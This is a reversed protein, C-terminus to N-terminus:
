HADYTVTEKIASYLRFNKVTTQRNTTGKYYLQCLNDYTWGAIDESYTVYGGGSSDSRLTGVVTGNKRIQGYVTGGGFITSKMDFKIRLTGTRTVRIEKTKRWTNWLGYPLMRETDASEVLGDGATYALKVQTVAGDPINITGVLEGTLIVDTGDFKVNKAPSGFSFKYAAGSYGLYFGTGTAYGTQGGKIWGTNPMTITGATIAGMNANIAALNTVSIQTATVTNTYIDGGDIKTVDSAHRWAEINTKNANTSFIRNTTESACKVLTISGADIYTANVANLTALSGQGSISAAVNASTQDALADTCKAATYGTAISAGTYAAANAATHASTQDANADTCKAVTLATPLTGTVGSSTLVIKGASIATTLVRSYTVGDALNDLSAPVPSKNGAPYLYLAKIESATLATNYIRVEDIKGNFFFYSNRLSGISIGRWASNAGIANDSGIEVGDLYLRAETNADKVIVVHHWDGFEITDAPNISVATAGELLVSLTRNSMLRLFYANSSGSANVGGLVTDDVTVAAANFWVSVSFSNLNEWQIDTSGAHASEDVGNFSLCKGVKGDVWDANEMNVLTGNNGNGSGDVAVMGSGDDLAWYGVLHEDSPLAPPNSIKTMFDISGAVKANTIAM